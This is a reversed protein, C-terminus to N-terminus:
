ILGSKFASEFAGVLVPKYDSLVRLFVGAPVLSERLFYIDFFPILQIVVDPLM